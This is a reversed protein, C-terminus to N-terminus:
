LKVKISINSSRTDSYSSLIFDGGISHNLLADLLNYLYVGIFAGISINRVTLATNAEDYSSLMEEKREIVLFENDEELYLQVNNNYTELKTNYDQISYIAFGGILISAFMLSYGKLKSNDIVQGLGPLFTSYLLPSYDTSGYNFKLSLREDPKLTIEEEFTKHYNTSSVSIINKGVPLKYTEKLNASFLKNNIIYNESDDNKNITLYGNQSILKPNFQYLDSNAIFRENWESYGDIDVSLNYVGTAIPVKNMPTFGILSDNIFVGANSPRSYVTLLAIGKEFIGYIERFSGNKYYVNFKRVVLTDYVFDINYTGSPFNELELPTIGVLSDNVFVQVSDLDSNLLLINEKEFSHEGINQGWSLNIFFVITIFIVLSIIRIKKEADVIKM